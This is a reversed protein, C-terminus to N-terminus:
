PLPAPDGLGWAPILRSAADAPTSIGIQTMNTALDDRLIHLLHAAGRAGFAGLAHHWGRGIMTFDAGLALMRLVDLGGEVAGDCILPYDPGVAERVQPLVHLAAPAGDFQRGAHNSVWVADVGVDRARAAVEPELVGKIILPASWENRLAALYDWDPAARLLYGAHSTSSAPGDTKLYEEMLRPRPIGNRLTELAWRPCLATQLLMRPTKKPPFTLEARRQRERRSTGPLDVTLVMVRFGSDRARRLIDRRIAPDSPPYLQFWGMDGALPGIEEPLRSASTSFGYPLREAAALRALAQEAGPWILGSMGVPAIGVPLSYDVGLFRTTLNPVIKGRLAAPRLRVADLAMRNMAKASETGTASDLYEWVFHPVRRRCRARLDSLAPYANDLDV